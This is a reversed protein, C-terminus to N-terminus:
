WRYGFRQLSRATLRERRRIGKGIPDFARQATLEDDKLAAEPLLAGPRLAGEIADYARDIRTEFHLKM